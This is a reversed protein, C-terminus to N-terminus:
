VCHLWLAQTQIGARDSGFKNRPCTAKVHGQRLVMMQLIYRFITGLKMAGPNLTLAPLTRLPARCTTLVVYAGANTPPKMHNGGPVKIRTGMGLTEWSVAIRMSRLLAVQMHRGVLM